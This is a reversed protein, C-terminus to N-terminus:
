ELKLDFRERAAARQKGFHQSVKAATTREVVLEGAELRVLLGESDVYLKSPLDILGPQVEFVQVEQAQGELTQPGLPKYSQTLLARTDTNYVSFAYTEKRQLLLKPALREWVMDLYVPGVGIPKTPDPLTMDRNTTFSSFLRDQKRIVQDRKILPRKMESDPPPLLTRVHEILENELDFSSFSDLAVHIVSGDSGFRWSRERLRLGRRVDRHRRQGATAGGSDAFDHTERAIRRQLFGVPEGGVSIIYYHLEENLRVREANAEVEELLKAGREIAEKLHQADGPKFHIKLSTAVTRFEGELRERDADSYVAGTYTLVWALAPNFPMCLTYSRMRTTAIQTEYVLLAGVRPPAEKWVHWELAVQGEPTERLIADDALLKGFQVVWEDFDRMEVQAGEGEREPLKTPDIRYVQVQLGARGGPGRGRLLGVSDRHHQFRSHDYAWNAPVDMEFGFAANTYRQTPLTEASDQALAAGALGLACWVVGGRWGGTRKLM